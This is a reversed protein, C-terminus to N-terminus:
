RPVVNRNSQEGTGVQTQMLIGVQGDKEIEREREREKHTTCVRKQKASWVLKEKNQDLFSHGQRETDILREISIDIEREM